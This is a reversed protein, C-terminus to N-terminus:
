RDQGPRVDMPPGMGRGRRMGMGPMMGSGPGMCARNRMFVAFAQRKEEPLAAMVSALRGIADREMKERMQVLEKILPEAAALDGPKKALVEIVEARKERMRNRTETMARRGNKQAVARIARFDEETLAPGGGATGSVVPAFSRQQWFHRGVTAAVALNMAVSFVFLGIFLARKM